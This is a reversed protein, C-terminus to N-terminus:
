FLFLTWYYPIFSIAGDPFTFSGDTNEYQPDLTTDDLVPGIPDSLRSGRLTFSMRTSATISYTYEGPKLIQSVTSITNGARVNMQQVIAGLSNRITLTLLGGPSAADLVFNMLQTRAIYLKGNLGTTASPVTGTLFTNMEAPVTGFQVDLTYNGTKGPAAVRVFMNRNAAIGTAQITYTNNGNAIITTRVPVNNGDLLEPKIALGNAGAARVTVTVVYTLRTNPTKISYYDIDTADSLTAQTTLANPNPNGPGM